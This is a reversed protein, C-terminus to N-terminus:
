PEAGLSRAVNENVADVEHDLAVRLGIYVSMALALAGLGIWIHFRRDRRAASGEDPPLASPSLQEPFAIVRELETRISEQLRLLELEGGRIAYKGQFGFLLCLYYVRLVEVRRKDGRLSELRRFFGEGAINEKFFHMQLPRAYWHGRIVESKSQAIEDALAAIAYAMDDADRESLGADRADRRMKDVFEILRRHILEGSVGLSDGASNLQQLANFCDKTLENVRDM